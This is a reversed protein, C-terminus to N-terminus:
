QRETTYGSSSAHINGNSDIMQVRNVMHTAVNAIFGDEILEIEETVPGIDDSVFSAFSTTHNYFVLGNFMDGQSLMWIETKKGSVKNNRTIDQTNYVKVTYTGAAQFLIKLYSTQTYTDITDGGNSVVWHYAEYPVATKITQYAYTNVNYVTVRTVNITNQGLALLETLYDMLQQYLVDTRSPVGIPLGGIDKIDVTGGFHDQLEDLSNNNLLDDLNGIPRGTLGNERMINEFWDLMDQDFEYQYPSVLEGILLDQDTVLTPVDPLNFEYEPNNMDSIISTYTIIQIIPIEVQNAIAFGNEMPMFVNGAFDRAGTGHIITTEPLIIDTVTSEPLTYEPALYEEYEPLIYQEYEPLVWEPLEYEPLEYGPLEYGPLNYEPLNPNQYNPLTYEPIDTYGWGTDGGDNDFNLADENLEGITQNVLGMLEDIRAQNDDDERQEQTRTDTATNITGQGTYSTTQEEAQTIIVTDSLYDRSQGSSEEYAALAPIPISLLLIAALASAILRKRRM